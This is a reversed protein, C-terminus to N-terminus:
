RRKIMLALNSIYHDPNVHKHSRLYVLHRETFSLRNDPWENAAPSYVTETKMTIDEELAKLKTIVADEDLVYINM